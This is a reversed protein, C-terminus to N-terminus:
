REDEEESRIDRWTTPDKGFGIALNWVTVLAWILLLWLPADLYLMYAWMFASFLGHYLSVRMMISLKM